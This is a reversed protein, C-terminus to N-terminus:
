RGFRGILFFVAASVIVAVTLTILMGGRSADREQQLADASQTLQTRLEDIELAGREVEDALAKNETEAKQRLRDQHEADGLAIRYGAFLGSVGGALDHTISDRKWHTLSLTAHIKEMELETDLLRRSTAAEERLAIGLSKELEEAKALAAGLDDATLDKVAQAAKLSEALSKNEENANRLKDETSRLTQQCSALKNTATTLQAEREQSIKRSEALVNTLVRNDDDRKALLERLSLVQAELSTVVAPSGEAKASRESLLATELAQVYTRKRTAAIINLCSGCNCNQIHSGFKYPVPTPM